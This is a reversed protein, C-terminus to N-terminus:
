MELLVYYGASCKGYKREDRILQKATYEGPTLTEKHIADFYIQAHRQLEHLIRFDQVTM